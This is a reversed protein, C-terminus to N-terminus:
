ASLEAAAGAVAHWSGASRTPGSGVISSMAGATSRGFCRASVATPAEMWDKLAHVPCAGLSAVRRVTVTRDAGTHSHLVLDVGAEMFHVQEVELGVLAGRGLGAAALLLLARDRLGALDGPCATAMRTLQAAAPPLARRRTATRRAHRLLTTVAPDSAPSALGHQRHQAAIAAARRALAGASLRDALTALYARSRPLAAPLPAAGALRCWTVFAAWDSAYLRLTEPAPSRHRRPVPDRVTLCKSTQARSTHSADMGRVQGEREDPGPWQAPRGLEADRSVLRNERSIGISALGILAHYACRGCQRYGRRRAPNPWNEAEARALTAGPGNSSRSQANGPWPGQGEVIGIPRGLRALGNAM